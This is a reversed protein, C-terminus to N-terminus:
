ESGAPTAFVNLEALEFDGTLNLMFRHWRASRLMDYKGSGYNVTGGTTLSEGLNNRYYNTLTSSTPPTLFLPRIRSVLNFKAEDGMDGTTISGTTAAGNLTQLVHSTNFIGITSNGFALFSSGYTLNPLNAYTSYLAGLGGYTVGPSYYVFAFEINRDDRGWKKTRYNYVVCRDLSTGAVYYFYVLTNVPDHVAISSRTYATNIENFVQERVAGTGIPQPRTGDFVYFDDPGMFIHRPYDETGVNAVAEQSVAGVALPIEVFDWVAPSGVYTGLFMGRSKYMVIQSGFRKCARIAGPVSILRGTACETAVSPVWDTYDGSACCWWRDPSDGYTGETTDCLFVFLGVTEVMSAQPSGAVNAFTTSVSAQLVDGKQAALCINGYAAFSWKYGATVTYDGGVTRTRDDWTTSAAEYLKTSTGAFMRTTDDTKRLNAAGQCTAALAALASTIPGPAGKFGRITPVVAACDVMVGPTTPDADPAYGLLKLKTM